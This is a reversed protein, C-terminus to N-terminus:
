SGSRCTARPTGCASPRARLSGSPPASSRGAASRAPWSSRARCWAAGAAAARRPRLADALRASRWRASGPEARRPEALRTSTTATGRAPPRASGGAPATRRWAHAARRKVFCRRSGMFNDHVPALPAHRRPAPVLQGFKSSWGSMRGAAAASAHSLLEEDLGVAALHIDVVGAAHRVRQRRVAVGHGIPGSSASRIM